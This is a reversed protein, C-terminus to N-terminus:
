SVIDKSPKSITFFALDIGTTGPWKTRFEAGNLLVNEAHTGQPINPAVRTLPSFASRTTKWKSHNKQFVMCLMSVNRIHGKGVIRSLSAAPIPRLGATQLSDREFRM